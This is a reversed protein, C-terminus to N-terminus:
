PHDYGIISNLDPKRSIAHAALMGSIVAAEVCGTDLGCATWDGAITMNEVSRDLPSIRYVLSGPLSLTYRDSDRFNVQLYRGVEASGATSGYKFAQPWVSKLDRALMANLDGEIKAQLLTKVLEDELQEPTKEPTSKDAREKLFAELAPELGPGLTGWTKKKLADQKIVALDTGAVVDEAIGVATRIASEPLLGCFYAVSQARAFESRKNAASVRSRWLQETALTHTMDAWTDYSRNLATFIGSGRYWGLGHLDKDLWVQASKTAVTKVHTFMAAWHPPLTADKNSNKGNLAKKLVPKLDDVGIGLIVGDFDREVLLETTDSGSALADHFRHAARDPWCGFEDLASASCDDLKKADRCTRFKLSSIYRGGQETTEFGVTELEHLFHFTVPSVLTCRDDAEKRPEKLVKYLPAFIADGMGSRIRWFMAGRYTFLMRLAGRIAVGAALSPRRRDGDRYAFVLDYIGTLFSSDLSTRTAGHQRLWARYDYGNILDLGRDDFLVRDRLLGVIITLVIDIIETKMRLQQDVSAVDNLLKRTQTALAEMLKLVSNATQPTFDDLKQLWRELITVSQLLVAAGTLSGVRLLKAAREILLQLSRTMDVSFDLDVVDDHTSRRQPRPQGPEDESPAGVVSQILTKLLDFCRQLYSALTFPNSREDLATGPLGKAPPFYGSWAALDGHPNPPVVGIHPEPFFADEIRRHALRGALNAHPGWEHREVEAYCERMMRFANEYFGLWVHLGHDLIRGHNDRVSAGKGGLRWTKEYIHIEYGPQRALQWAAAMAACGGGVIAIKTPPLPKPAKM